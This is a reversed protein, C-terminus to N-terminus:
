AIVEIQVFYPCGLEPAYYSMHYGVYGSDSRCPDRLINTRTQAMELICLHDNDADANKCKTCDNM